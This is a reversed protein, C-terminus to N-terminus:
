GYEDGIKSSPRYVTSWPRDDTIWPKDQNGFRSRIMKRVCM